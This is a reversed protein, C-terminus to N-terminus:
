INALERVRASIALRMHMQAIPGFAGNIEDIAANLEPGLDDGENRDRIFDFMRETLLTTALSDDGNAAANTIRIHMSAEHALRAYPNHLDLKTNTM